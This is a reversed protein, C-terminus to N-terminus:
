RSHHASSAGKVPRPDSGRVVVTRRLVEVLVPAVDAGRGAVGTFVARLLWRPGTIGVCRATDPGQEGSVRVWLEPGFEGEQEKVSAGQQQWQHTMEARVQHWLSENRPAAFANLELQSRGDSASIGTLAGAENASFQLQVGPLVPVRLSGFDLRVVGDNWRERDEDLDYPGSPETAIDAIPIAIEDSEVEVEVSTAADKSKRRRFFM